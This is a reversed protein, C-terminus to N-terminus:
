KLGLNIGSDMGVPVLKEEETKGAAVAACQTVRVLWTTEYIRTSM